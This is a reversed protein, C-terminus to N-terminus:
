FENKSVVVDFALTVSHGQEPKLNVNGNIDALNSDKFTLYLEKLSPARYGLGYSARLTFYKKFDYKINLSPVLPSRYRTNYAFRVSPQIHLPFLNGLSAELPPMIAWKSVVM